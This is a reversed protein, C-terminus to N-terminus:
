KALNFEIVIDLHEKNYNDPLPPFPASDRVAKLTSTDLLSNRSSTKLKLNDLNGKKYLRFSVSSTLLNYNALIKSPEQWNTKVKHQVIDLYWKFPFNKVKLDTKKQPSSTETITEKSHNLKKFKEEIKEKLSKTEAPKIIKRKKILQKQPKVTKPLTKEPRIKKTTKKIEPKDDKQNSVPTETM